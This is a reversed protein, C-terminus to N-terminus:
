FVVHHAGTKRWCGAPALARGVVAQNFKPASGGRPLVKSLGALLKGVSEHSIKLWFLWTLGGEHEQGM